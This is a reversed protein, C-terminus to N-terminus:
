RMYYYSYALQSHLVAGFVLSVVLVFLAVVTIVVLTRILYSRALRKRAPNDTGGFSWVLALILGVLPIAFLLMTITTDAQSM